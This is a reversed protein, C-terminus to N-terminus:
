CCQEVLYWTVALLVAWGLVLAGGSKIQACSCIFLLLQTSTIVIQRLQLYNLKWNQIELCKKRLLGGGEGAPGVAEQNDLSWSWVWVCWVRYSDEPRTILRVCPGRCLFVCYEFSTDMYAAPNSGAFGAFSLGYVSAKSPAAYKQLHLFFYALSSCLGPSPLHNPAPLFLTTTPFSFSLSWQSSSSKSCVIFNSNDEICQIPPRPSSQVLRAWSLSLHHATTFATIFWRNCYYASFKRVV